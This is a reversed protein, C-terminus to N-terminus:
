EESEPSYPPIPPIEGFGRIVQTSQKNEKRPHTPTQYADWLSGLAQPISEPQSHARVSASSGSESWIEKNKYVFQNM